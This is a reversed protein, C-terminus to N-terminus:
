EDELDFDNEFECTFVIHRIGGDQLTADTIEPYTSGADLLARRVRRQMALYDQDIPCFYHIQYEAALEVPANDGAIIQRDLILNFTFYEDGDGAYFDPFVPLGFPSLTEMIIQNITKAM